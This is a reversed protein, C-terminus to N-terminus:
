KRLKHPCVKGAGKGCNCNYCLVQFGDPYGNKKLYSYFRTGGYDHDSFVAFRHKRGGGDIHDITLFEIGQEGCCKCKLKGKSYHTVVDLKMRRAFGRQYEARKAKWESTSANKARYDRAYEAESKGKITKQKHM